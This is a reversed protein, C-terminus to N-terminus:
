LLCLHLLAINLPLELTVALDNRKEPHLDFKKPVLNVMKSPFGGLPLAEIFFLREELSAALMFCTEGARM